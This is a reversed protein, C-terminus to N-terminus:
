RCRHTRAGRCSRGRFRSTGARRSTPLASARTGTPPPARGTRRVEGRVAYRRASRAARGSRPSAARGRRGARASRRARRTPRRRRRGVDVRRPEADVPRGADAPDPGQQRRPVRELLLAGPADRRHRHRHQHRVGGGRRDLHLELGAGAGARHHRRAGRAVLRDAVREVVQPEAVGVHDDGAARLRAHVRQREGREALHLRQRLPVVGGLQGGPGVVGAAVAEHEALAGRRQDELALVVRLGAARLDVGPQEAARHRAVRVVDARRVRVRAAGHRARHPERELVGAERRVVDRVDVRVGRARGTPSM